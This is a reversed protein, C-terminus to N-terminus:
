FSIINQISLSTSPDCESPFSIGALPGVVEAVVIGMIEVDAAGTLPLDEVELGALVAPGVGAWAMEVGTETKDMM